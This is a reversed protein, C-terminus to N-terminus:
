KVEASGSPCKIEGDQLRVENVALEVSTGAALSECVKNKIAPNTGQILRVVGLYAKYTGLPKASVAAGKEDASEDTKSLTYTYNNTTSPIDVGLEPLAAAFENHEMYYAQQMRNITGINTKAEAQRAKGTSGLMSPLAIASLIGVIVLVVLLEILTFGDAIDTKTRLLYKIM